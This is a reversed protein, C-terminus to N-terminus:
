GKDREWQINKNNFEFRPAFISLATFTEGKKLVPGHMIGAPVFITDNARTKRIEGGVKFDIEGSIIVLLEDHNNQVHLSNKTESFQVVQATMKDTQTLFHRNISKSGKESLANLANAIDSLNHFQSMQGEQIVARLAM